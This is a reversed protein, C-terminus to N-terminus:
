CHCIQCQYLTRAHGVQANLICAHCASPPMWFGMGELHHITSPDCQVGSMLADASQVNFTNNAFPGLIKGGAAADDDSSDEGSSQASGCSDKDDNMTASPPQEMGTPPVEEDEDEDESEEEDLEYSYAHRVADKVKSLLQHHWGHFQKSIQM